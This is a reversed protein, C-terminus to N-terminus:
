INAHNEGTNSLKFWSPVNRKKWSAFKYKEGIYYNRYALVSDKCKYKEPMAQPPNTFNIKLIGSPPSKLMHRFLSDTKHVKDYRFMYEDCLAVFLDYLWMYNNISSRCWISCPHNIHTSKYLINQNFINNSIVRHSTCLLQASELIMKIVHKDLHYQAALNPNSDLYFINM